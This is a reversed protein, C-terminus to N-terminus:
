SALPLKKLGLWPRLRRASSSSGSGSESSSPYHKCPQWLARSNSGRAPRGGVRVAHWSLSGLSLGPPSHFGLLLQVERGGPPLEWLEM